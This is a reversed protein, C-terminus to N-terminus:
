WRNSKDALAQSGEDSAYFDAIFEKLRRKDSETLSGDESYVGLAHSAIRYRSDDQMGPNNRYQTNIRWLHKAVYGCDVHNPIM